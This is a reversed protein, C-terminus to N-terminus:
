AESTPRIVTGHPYNRRERYMIVWGPLATVQYGPLKSAILQFLELATMDRRPVDIEVADYEARDSETNEYRFVYPLAKKITDLLKRATYSGETVGVLVWDLRIPFQTDFHDPGSETEDRRRGPDRPGFGAGNWACVGEERFRKILQDEPALVTMDEDVYLCTFRMADPPINQRGSLKRLHHSLRKVVSDAASGVYVLEDQLYLHYVGPRAELSGLNARTLPAPELAVLADHLQDTLARTISLKFEASAAVHRWTLSRIPRLLRPGM